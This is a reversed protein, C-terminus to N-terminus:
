HIWQLLIVAYSQPQTTWIHHAHINIWNGSSHINIKCAYVHWLHVKINSSHTSYSRDLWFQMPGIWCFQNNRASGESDSGTSVDFVVVDLFIHGPALMQQLETSVLFNSFNPKHPNPCLCTAGVECRWMNVWCYCIRGWLMCLVSCSAATPHMICLRRGLSWGMLIQQLLSKVALLTPYNVIVIVIVLFIPM